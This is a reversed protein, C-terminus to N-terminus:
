AGRGGGGSVLGARKAVFGGRRPPPGRSQDPDVTKRQWQDILKGVGQYPREPSSSGSSDETPSPSKYSPFSSSSPLGDLGSSPERSSPMTKTLSTSPLGSLASPGQSMTRKRGPADSPIPRPAGSPTSSVFHRGQGTTSAAVGQISNSSGFKSVLPSSPTYPPSTVHRQEHTNSPTLYSPKSLSSPKPSSHQPSIGTRNVATPAVNGEFRQVMDSISTRRSAMRRPTEPVSLGPSSPPELRGESTAKNMPFAYMSQPRHRSSSSPSVPEAPSPVVSGRRGHGSTPQRRSSSSSVPPDMAPRVGSAQPQVRPPSSTRQKAVQPPVISKSKQLSSGVDGFGQVAPSHLSERPREKTQVVGGGWLDVLDHVSSQRGRHGRKEHSENFNYPAVDEPGDDEDSSSLMKDPGNTQSAPPQYLPRSSTTRERVQLPAITKADARRSSSTKKTPSPSIPQEQASTTVAEQPSQIHVTSEEIFSSRKNTFQRLIPTERGQADQVPPGLGDDDGTLWDQARSQANGVSSPQMAAPSIPISDGTRQPKPKISISSRHRRSLAPRSVPRYSARKPQPSISSIGAASSSGIDQGNGTGEVPLRRPREADEKSERMAVGTVQQSRVGSVPIAPKPRHASLASSGSKFSQTQGLDAQPPRHVPPASGPSLSTANFTADLEELSPFRNEAGVDYSKPNPSPPPKPGTSSVAHISKWSSSLPQSTEPRPSPTPHMAPAPTPKPALSPSPTVTARNMGSSSSPTVLGTRLKRAEGLTPAPANKSSSLGLGEFADKAKGKTVVVKTNRSGEAPPAPKSVGGNAGGLQGDDYTNWLKEGFNDGFANSPMAKGDGSKAGPTQSDIRWPEDMTSSRGKDVVGGSKQGKVAANAMGASLNVDRWARDDEPSFNDSLLDRQGQPPTIKEKGKSPSPARSSPASKDGQVAPPRGRRMPAIAELVKDRAQVGTGAAGPSAKPQSPRYAVLNDLPNANPDVARPSIPKPVPANYTFRSKTGRLQHVQNLLEFVSPRHSGHERLMSAILANMQPSYVPYPPTRYQVNLIALPGHEEFPTTYYCLKYLLVGLAWVDSKEDVPRRLFLDIMEPARYQLTTHRNLDAELARIEATNSPPRSSVPTASGFDCLKFSNHSQLINEVKLDRHLLSPRLNHMAAVGECVDVFIQLIEQETLRERLRRNMMDIIGGGPCFEMLIFVEFTGNQLKHWAADILYVINPHGKLIRMIDVEKRVENLMTENAVAIRKLVHHTTNYVPTPTRVLYVFSFGGQSLYREVQVTYKNVSITQGPVLPGKSQTANYQAHQQM